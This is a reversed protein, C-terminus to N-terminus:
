LHQARTKILKEAKKYLMKYTFGVRKYVPKENIFYGNFIYNIFYEFGKTHSENTIKINCTNNIPYFYSEMSYYNYHKKTYFIYFKLELLSLYVYIKYNKKNRLPEYAVNLVPFDIIGPINMIVATKRVPVAFFTSLPKM